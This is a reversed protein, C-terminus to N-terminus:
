LGVAVYFEQRLNTPKPVISVGPLVQLAGPVAGGSRCQLDSFHVEVIASVLQILRKQFVSVCRLSSPSEANWAAAYSTGHISRETKTGTSAAWRNLPSEIAVWAIRSNHSVTCQAAVFAEAIFGTALAVGRQVGGRLSQARVVKGLFSLLYETTQSYRDKITVATLTLRAICRRSDFNMVDVSVPGGVGHVVQDSKAPVAVHCDCKKVV